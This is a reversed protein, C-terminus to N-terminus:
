TEVSLLSGGGHLIARSQEDKWTGGFYSVAPKEDWVTSRTKALLDRHELLRVVALGKDGADEEGDWLTGFTHGRAGM